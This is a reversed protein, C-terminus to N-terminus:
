GGQFIFIIFGHRAVLRLKTRHGNSDFLRHCVETSDCVSLIRARPLSQHHPANEELPYVNLISRYMYCLIFTDRDSRIRVRHYEM